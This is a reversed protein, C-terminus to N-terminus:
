INFINTHKKVYIKSCSSVSKMLCVSTLFLLQTCKLGARVSKKEGYQATQNARHTVIYDQTM